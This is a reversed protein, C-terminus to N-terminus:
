WDALKVVDGVVLTAPQQVNAAAVDAVISALTGFVARQDPLTGRSIVAAPTAMSRGNACLRSVVVPLARLGMLVVLTPMKALASWDLRDKTEDSEVEEADGCLHGTVVAFGSAITRHTLPIGAAAPAAVASTVGPVVEFPVGANRLAGCEEAGRGFVFPDGGKLRVISHGARAERVLLDNIEDQPTSRGHGHKGVSIVRATPLPYTLLERGILRDHVVVDATRLLNLGRVTILDPDGPGAGVLFVRGINPPARRAEAVAHTLLDTDM